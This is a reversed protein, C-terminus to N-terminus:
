GKLARIASADIHAQAGLSLGPQSLIRVALNARESAAEDPVAARLEVAVQEIWSEVPAGNQYARALLREIERLTVRLREERDDM